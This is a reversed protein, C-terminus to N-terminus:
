VSQRAQLRPHANQQEHPSRARRESQRPVGQTWMSSTMYGRTKFCALTQCIGCTDIGVRACARDHKLLTRTRLWAQVGLEAAFKVM